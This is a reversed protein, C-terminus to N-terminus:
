LLLDVTTTTTTTARLMGGGGTFFGAFFRRLWASRTDERGRGWGVGGWGLGRAGRGDLSEVVVVNSEFRVSSCSSYLQAWNRLLLKCRYSSADQDGWECAQFLHHGKGGEGRGGDSGRGGYSGWGRNLVGVEFCALKVRRARYCLFFCVFLFVFLVLCWLCCATALM